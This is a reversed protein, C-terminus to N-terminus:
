RSRAEPPLPGRYPSLAISDRAFLQDEDGMVVNVSWLDNGSADTVRGIQVYRAALFVVLHERELLAAAEENTAIPCELVSFFFTLMTIQDQTWCEARFPRGDSLAGEAWGLDHIGDQAGSGPIYDSRDPTPFPCTATGHRSGSRTTGRTLASCRVAM